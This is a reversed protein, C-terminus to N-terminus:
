RYVHSSLMRRCHCEETEPNFLAKLSASAHSDKDKFFVFLLLFFGSLIIQFIINPQVFCYYMNMSFYFLNSRITYVRSATPTWFFRYSKIFLTSKKGPFLKLSSPLKRFLHPHRSYSLSNCFSHKLTQGVSLGPLTGLTVAHELTLQRSQVASVHLGRQDAELSETPKTALVFCCVGTM